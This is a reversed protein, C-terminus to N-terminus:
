KVNWSYDREALEYRSQVFTVLDILEKVTMRDNFGPMPSIKGDKALEKNFGPALGHSPNIIATVLEGHTQIRSVKGGLAVNTAVILTPAPLEVGEVRHCQNCKLALFATQGKEISGEPLYLGRGSKPGGCGVVVLVAIVVVFAVVKRKM